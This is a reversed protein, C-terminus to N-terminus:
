FDLGISVGVVGSMLGFAGATIPGIIEKHISLGYTPKSIGHSFDEAGLISINLTSRTSDLTKVESLNYKDTKKDTIYTDTTKTTDVEGNPLKKSVETTTTHTDKNDNLQNSIKTTDSKKAQPVSYRGLAFALTLLVVALIIRNKDTM